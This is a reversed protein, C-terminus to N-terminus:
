LHHNIQYWHWTVVQRSEIHKYEVCLGRHDQFVNKTTIHAYSPIVLKPGHSPKLSIVSLGNIYQIEVVHCDVIRISLIVAMLYYHDQGTAVLTTVHLWWDDFMGNLVILPYMVILAVLKPMIFIKMFSFTCIFIEDQFYWGNQESRARKWTLASTNGM